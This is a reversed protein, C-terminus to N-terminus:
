LKKNIQNIKMEVFDIFDVGSKCSDRSLTDFVKNEANSKRVRDEPKLHLYIM